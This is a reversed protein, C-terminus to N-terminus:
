RNVRKKKKKRRRAKGGPTDDQTRFHSKLFRLTSRMTREQWKVEEWQDDLGATSVNALIDQQKGAMISLDKLREVQGEQKPRARQFSTSPLNEIEWATRERLFKIRHMTEQVKVRNNAIKVLVEEHERVASSQGRLASRLERGLKTEEAPTREGHEMKWTLETVKEAAMEVAKETHGVQVRLRKEAAKARDGVAGLGRYSEVLSNVRQKRDKSVEDAIKIKGLDEKFTKLQDIMAQLAMQREAASDVEEEEDLGLIADAFGSQNLLDEEQAAAKEAGDILRDVQGLIEERQAKTGILFPLDKSPAEELTKALGNVTKATQFWEETMQIGDGLEIAVLASSVSSLAGKADTQVKELAPADAAAAMEEAFKDIEEQLDAIDRLTTNIPDDEPALDAGTPDDALPDGGTPEAQPTSPPAQGIPSVDPPPPQQPTTFNTDTNDVTDLGVAGTTANDANGENVSDVQVGSPSDHPRPDVADNRAVADLVRGMRRADDVLRRGRIEKEAVLLKGEQQETLVPNCTAQMAERFGGRNKRAEPDSESQYNDMLRQAIPRSRFDAGLDDLLADQDVGTPLDRERVTKHQMFESWEHLFSDSSWPNFRGRVIYKFYLYYEPLTRPGFEFLKMLEGVYEFKKKM